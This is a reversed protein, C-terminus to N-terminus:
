TISVRCITFSHINHKGESQNLMQAYFCRKCSHFKLLTKTLTFRKQTVWFKIRTIGKCHSTLWKSSSGLGWRYSDSEWALVSITYYLITFPNDPTVWGTVRNDWMVFHQQYTNSHRFKTRCLGFLSVAALAQQHPWPLKTKRDGGDTLILQWNAFETWM